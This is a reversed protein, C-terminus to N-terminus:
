PFLAQAQELFANLDTANSVGFKIRASTVADGSNFLVQSKALNLNSQGSSGPNSNSPAQIRTKGVVTGVLAEVEAVFIVGPTTFTAPFSAANSAVPLTIEYLDYKEPTYLIDVNTYADTALFVLDGSPSVGITTTTPTTYPAGATAKPGLEGAAATGARAYARIISNAKADDPLTITQLTSAQVYPNAAAANPNQARLPVPMARVFSGFGMARLADAVQNANMGNLAAVGATANTSITM